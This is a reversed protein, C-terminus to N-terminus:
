AAHAEDSVAQFDDEPIVIAFSPFSILYKKLPQVRQVAVVPPRADDREAM